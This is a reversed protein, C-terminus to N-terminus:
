FTLNIKTGLNFNLLRENESFGASASLVFNNFPLFYFGGGWAHHWKKSVEGPLWVRGMDYFLTIGFPGPVIYSNVDFLRIRLEASSYLSSRGSYRNKRFAHLNANNIGLTMAQFFEYNRTYVKGGGFGLVMTARANERMSAYITMDSTFRAYNNTGDSIGALGVLENNWYIGRTPFLTNNRNDFQMALKVGAYSKKSFVDASDLGVLAPKALINKTNDNYRNWYHYYYPGALLHLKQFLRKRVLAEAEFTRYRVRYFDLNKGDPLTTNNGLGTFNRISPDVFNAKVVLDINRTIHNFEGRYNLQWAKRGMAYLASLQQDTAYPLNRFGQTQLHFGAGAMWGDDSNYGLRLQPIRTTNYQFGLISNQNVPPASSFRIKSRSSNEIHNLDNSIDYLLNEVHGRINFTDNGKGGIIRIKIRSRANDDIEFVDDDNLGFLRIEKTVSPDFVRNYMIFSTDGSKSREYVRVQLGNGYSSVRFYEEQNSGVVNVRRSIFDYYHMGAERLGNRRSILKRELSEGSLGYIEKPLHRVADRIVSDTLKAQVSEIAQQWEAADLDTLFLRDFDRASYGLWNVKKIRERFGNLFPMGRQSLWRLILGNSNFFAQDRDRPIPYYIKGKRGASDSVGWRWQDFHRDYDGILMDLLRAKLVAAQDARHDNDDLMKDFAKATTKSEAGDITSHREELMCVTNAFVNRYMGLATDDPIYVLRPHATRIGIADALPPVVLAGYPFSASNIEPLMKEAITGRYSEPINGGPIKNVSRLVWEKGSRDKLRLSKTQSGGGMSEVRMGGYATALHLVDMNVPATWEKRYNQGMFFRKMGKVPHLNASAARSITDATFASYLVPGTQSGPLGAPAQSFNIVFGTYALQLTDTVKYFRLTVNRDKSIDLVGFGTTTSNFLSNSNKSTRNQKCGGGSIIYNLGNERIHQLNHDHGSVFIVNPSYNKVAATVKEIMDTYAPYSIDQPAGFISRSVPYISGIVPLPLYLNKKIDTFPFLHQKLTFFGGHIGNSKFPHHCAIIILKGSSRAALDSIQTILEDKTKCPCDSEIEPKDHPHLWWQSDFLIVSINDGIDVKVPGPCGDEPQYKVNPKRLLDVYNQQRVIAEYGGVGGNEWDHNGPIMWVKAPTNDAVSVQSDLIARAKDYNRYEKDPLGTKYLNDGLFFITTRNDLPIHARVADVVPHRGNTLQGADGILVIRQSLTDDQSHAALSGSLGALLLLSWVPPSLRQFIVMTM